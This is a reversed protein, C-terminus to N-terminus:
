SDNPQTRPHDEHLEPYKWVKKKKQFRIDRKPEQDKVQYIKKRFKTLDMTQEYVKRTKYLASPKMKLHEENGVDEKILRYTDSEFFPPNHKHGKGLSDLLALDHAYMRSDDKMREQDKAIAKRLTRLNTAWNTYKSKWVGHVDLRMNFIQLPKMKETIEGTLLQRRLLSKSESNAWSEDEEEDDSEAKPGSNADATTPKDVTTPKEATGRKGRKYVQKKQKGVVDGDDKNSGEKQLVHTKRAM